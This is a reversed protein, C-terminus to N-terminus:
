VRVRGGRSRRKLGGQGDLLEELNAIGVAAWGEADRWSAPTDDPEVAPFAFEYQCAPDDDNAFVVLVNPGSLTVEQVVYGQALSKSARAREALACCVAKAFEVDARRSDGGDEGDDRASTTGTWDAVALALAIALTLMRFLM